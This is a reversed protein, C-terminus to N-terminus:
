LRPRSVLVSYLKGGWFRSTCVVVDTIGYRIIFPFQRSVVTAFIKLMVDLRRIDNGGQPVEEKLVFSHLAIWSTVNGGILFIGALQFIATIYIIIGGDM